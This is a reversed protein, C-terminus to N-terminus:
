HGSPSEIKRESALVPRQIGQARFPHDGQRFFQSEDVKETSSRLTNDTDQGGVSSIAASAFYPISQPALAWM